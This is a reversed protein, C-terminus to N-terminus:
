GAYKAVKTKQQREAIISDSQSPVADAVPDSLVFYTVLVSISLIPPM